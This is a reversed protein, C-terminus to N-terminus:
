QLRLCSCATPRSLALPQQYERDCQQSEGTADAVAYRRHRMGSRYERVLTRETRRLKAWGFIDFPTGRLRRGSALMRLFPRAWPGLKLKSQMGMSRLIPPHLQWVIKAGPGFAQEVEARAAPATLLRAVEYEDKYAMLKHLEQAVTKTLQWDGAVAVGAEAEAVAAVDSLYSLALSSSQFGVLDAARTRLVADLGTRAVLTALAAEVAAPLTVSLLDTAKSTEVPLGSPDVVWERGWRFAAINREVAVGNLSIAQEVSAGDLPLAGAQLAVGIMFVNATLADGFLATTIAAANVYRNLTARSRADLRGRLDAEDPYAQTPHSVM